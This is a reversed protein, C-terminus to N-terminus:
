QEILSRFVYIEADERCLDAPSTILVLEWREPESLYAEINSDAELLIYNAEELWVAGLEPTWMGFRLADDAELGFRLSYGDNIQSPFIEADPVFLLPVASEGGQWYVKDGSSIIEALEQGVQNYSAIVNASCDYDQYGGASFPLPSIVLSFITVAFFLDRLEKRHSSSRRTWYLMGFILILVLVLMLAPPLYIRVIDRLLNFSGQYDLGYKNELIINLKVLGSRSTPIRYALLTRLWKSPLQQGVWERFPIVSISFLTALLVSSIALKFKSYAHHIDANVIALILVLVGLQTYFSMYVQFCFVCYNGGLSKYGHIVVLFAFLTILFVYSRIFKESKWEMKKWPIILLSLIGLFPLAHTRLGLFAAYVRSPLDYQPDWSRGDSQPMRFTSIAPIPLRPFQPLWFKIIEPFYIIHVLLITIGGAFSARLASRFGYQWWIYLVLFGFVPIMNIRTMFLLGALFGGIVLERESRKGDVTFYLIWALMCAVLVQSTGVSYMKILAPNASVAWVAFAAWGAGHWRRVTLFIGALMLVGLAISFGRGVVLGQGIWAQAMGPILFSFPMHNTWVGYDEYPVYRGTIFYYGKLLYAGEDLVSLQHIAYYISQGFYAIFAAVSLLDFKRERTM